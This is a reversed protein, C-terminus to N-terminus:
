IHILSLDQVQKVMASFHEDVEELSKNIDFNQQKIEDRIKNLKESFNSMIKNNQEKLKENVDSSMKRLVEDNADFRKNQENFNNKVEDFRGESKVDQAKM